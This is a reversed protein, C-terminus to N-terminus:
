SIMYAMVRRYTRLKEHAQKNTDPCDMISQTQTEGEGAVKRVGDGECLFKHGWKM